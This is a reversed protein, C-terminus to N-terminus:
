EPLGARGLREIFLEAKAPDSYLRHSKRFRSLSFGPELALVRAAAMRAAEHQGLAEHAVILTRLGTTYRPNEALGMSLWKIASEYREADYHVIGLFIYYQFLHPDFPSLRLAREASKIAEDVRGISSLTVSSLLWATSSNPNAQRARDHYSIATDFDGMLYAQVHGFTALARADLDDIRIAQQALVAAHESDGAPDDSWGQGVNLSHWRAAWAFPPSFTPDGDMSRQLHERAERFADVQLTGILDLAQLYSDYATFSSPAKRLSRRREASRLGPLLHSLAADVIDDQVAFTDTGSFDRSLNALVQGNRTDLLEVSLRYRQDAHRLVGSIVYRVGLVSALAQPDASQNAFAMTSSRSIVTLDKMRSLRSIIDEVIGAAFYRHSEPGDASSFPMVAISPLSARGPPVITAPRGDTVLEFAEVPREMKRLALTGLPRMIFEPHDTIQERVSDTLLAGGVPAHEQLRAAINVGDGILDGEDRLVRCYNLAARLMLGHRRRRSQMQVDRVWRVGDAAQEFTVLLGDGMSKVLQGDHQKLLPILIESRLSAWRQYTRDEDSQMMQSFGVVDVFGVCTWNSPTCNPSTFSLEEDAQTEMGAVASLKIAHAQTADRWGRASDDPRQYYTRRKFM